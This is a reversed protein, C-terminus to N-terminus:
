DIPGPNVWPLRSFLQDRCLLCLKIVTNYIPQQSSPDFPCFFFYYYNSRFVSIQLFIASQIGFKQELNVVTCFIEVSFGIPKKQIEANKILITLSSFNIMKKVNFICVNRCKRHYWNREKSKLFIKKKKKKLSRSIGTALLLQKGLTDSLILCKCPPIHYLNFNINITM